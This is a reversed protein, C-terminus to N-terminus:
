YNLVVAIFVVDALFLKNFNKEVNRNVNQVQPFYKAFAKHLIACLIKDVIM